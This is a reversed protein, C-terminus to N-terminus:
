DWDSCSEETMSFPSEEQLVSGSCHVAVSPWHGGDLRM